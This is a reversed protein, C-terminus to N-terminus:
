AGRVDDMWGRLDASEEGRLDASEAITVFRRIASIEEHDHIEGFRAGTPHHHTKGKSKERCTPPFLNQFWFHKTFSCIAISYLIVMKLLFYMKLPDM